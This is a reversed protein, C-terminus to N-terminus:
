RTTQKNAIAVFKGWFARASASVQARLDARARISDRFTRTWCVETIRVEPNLIGEKEKTGSSSRLCAARLLVLGRTLVGQVPTRPIYTIKCLLFPDLSLM